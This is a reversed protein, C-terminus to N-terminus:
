EDEDADAVIRLLDTDTLLGVLLAHRVVPLCGIRHEVMSEIADQLTGTEAITFVKASMIEQVETPGIHFTGRMQAKEDEIMEVGCARRVDRDSLVGVLEGGVVVPLHRIHSDHMTKAAQNLFDKPGITVLSVRMHKRVLESMVPPSSILRPGKQYAELIDTSTVMGAVQHGAVVPIAHFKGAAMMRAATHIDSDPELYVVAKSMIEGVRGPGVVESDPEPRRESELKWGVSILLDRDSLMGVLRGADIVPLHHISHEDMLCIAKDLSDQSSVSFVRRKMLNALTM